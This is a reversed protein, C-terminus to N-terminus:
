IKQKVEQNKKQNHIKSILKAITKRIQKVKGPNEPTTKTARQANIKLLDKKLEEIKKEMQDKSMHKLENKKILAM